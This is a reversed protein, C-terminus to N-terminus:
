HRFRARLDVDGSSIGRSGPCRAGQQGAIGFPVEVVPGSGCGLPCVGPRAGGTAFSM